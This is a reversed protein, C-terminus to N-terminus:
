RPAHAAMMKPASGKRLGTATISSLEFRIQKGVAAAYHKGETGAMNPTDLICLLAVSRAYLLCTLHV